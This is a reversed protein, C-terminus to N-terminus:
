ILNRLAGTQKYWLSVRGDLGGVAVYQACSAIAYVDGVHLGKKVLTESLYRENNSTKSAKRFQSAPVPKTYFNVHGKSSTACLYLHSFDRGNSLFRMQNLDSFRNNAHTLAFLVAGTVFSNITINGLDDAVGLNYPKTQMITIYDLKALNKADTEDISGENELSGQQGQVGRQLIMTEVQQQKMGGRLKWKKLMFDSDVTVM